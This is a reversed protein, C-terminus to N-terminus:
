STARLVERELTKYDVPGRFRYTIFGFEDTLVIYPTFTIDLWADSTLVAAKEATEDELVAPDVEITGSVSTSVYEGIDFSVLSILGRYDGALENIIDDQDQTTSQSSDYFYVIMPQEDAINDLIEKPVVEPDRPFPEYVQEEPPSTDPAQAEGDEGTAAPAAAAPAEAAPEEAPEDGGGCGVVFLAM